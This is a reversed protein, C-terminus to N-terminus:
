ATEEARRGPREHRELRRWRLHEDVKALAVALEHRITLLESHLYTPDEGNHAVAHSAIATLQAVVVRTM